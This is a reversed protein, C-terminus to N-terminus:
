WEAKGNLQASRLCMQNPYTLLAREVIRDTPGQDNLIKTVSIVLARRPFARAYAALMKEWVAVLAEGTVGLRAFNKEDQPSKPLHMEGSTKAPGVACVGALAPNDAYRKGVAEILGTWERVFTEDTPLPITLTSGRASHYKNEDVFPFRQAGKDYVWEPTSAGPTIQLLVKKNRRSMEQFWFDPYQWRFRAPEPQLENWRLGLYLGDNYESDLVRRLDTPEEPTGLMERAYSEAWAASGDSDPMERLNLRDFYGRPYDVRQTPGALTIEGHAPVSVTPSLTLAEDGDNRVVREGSARVFVKAAGDKTLDYTAVFDEARTTAALALAVACSAILIRTVM